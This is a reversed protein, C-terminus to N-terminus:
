KRLAASNRYEMMGERSFAMGGSSVSSEYSEVDRRWSATVDLSIALTTERAVPM